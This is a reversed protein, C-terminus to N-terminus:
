GKRGKCPLASEKSTPFVASCVAIVTLCAPTPGVMDRFSTERCMAKVVMQAVEPCMEVYLCRLLQTASGSLLRLWFQLLDKQVTRRVAEDRDRLGEKLVRRRESM